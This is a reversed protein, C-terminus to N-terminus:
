VSLNNIVKELSEEWHPISLTYTEKIKSKNLVSYAPRVTATPYDKTEIPRIECHLHAFQMIKRAFDYWSCVGENSFHYIGPVIGRNCVALIAAALDGAYTPTGIQDFVVPLFDREGGLRLMTKVFNNGTESYLWSTRIIVTQPNAAMLAMEGALKTCGYVSLPHTEDTEIYPRYGKGDFVYDTSIHIMSIKLASTTKGLIAVAQHNLKDAQEKESEAKDVATYAACNILLEIRNTELYSVVAKEDIIDLTDVDTFFFHDSPYKDTCRRIADGLQGNAGTVLINM